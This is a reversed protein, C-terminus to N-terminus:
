AASGAPEPAATTTGTRVRRDRLRRTLKRAPGYWVPFLLVALAIVVLVTLWPQPVYARGLDGLRSNWMVVALGLMAYLCVASLVAFVVLGVQKAGPRRRARLDRWLGTAFYAKAEEKLRPSRIADALAQYGDLPMLPILNFLTNVYLGFALMYCVGAVQPNAWLTTLSLAGALGTTSLPGSLAVVIRSYPTGFWMDSTDVFAFPMGLMLLFGGRNVRRGYSKVAFAHAAEHLTLAVFFGVVGAVAGVAGAGGLDFLQAERSATWFAWVGAVSSAWVLLVALPTFFWWGVRRYARELMPDLGRVSAEVRILNKVVARGVRRWFGVPPEDGPLGRVLGAEDFTRITAEIRPLALEDYEHLYAFLLDRITNEGDLRNWLFVDREDLSLYTGTRTNRLVWRQGDRDDALRKLAWGSRQRPRATLPEEATAAAPETTDGTAQLVTHETGRLITHSGLDTPRPQEFRAEVDGFHVTTRDHLTAREGRLETGGVETGNFSGLDEVHFGDRERVIRAHHRSVSADDIVVDNDPERGVTTTPKNIAASGSDWRLVPAAYTNVKARKRLTGCTLCYPFDKRVRVHCAPCLM